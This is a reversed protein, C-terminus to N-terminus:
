ENDSNDDTTTNGDNGNYYGTNGDTNRIGVNLVEIEVRRNHFRGEPTSNTDIPYKEGFGEPVMRDKDIGKSQLYRIVSKSRNLSLTENYADSGLSDTHGIIKIRMEPFANMMMAVEDLHPYSESRLRYSDFDFNINFLCIRKDSIDVGLKIFAYMEGFSYCDKRIYELSDGHAPGPKIIYVTDTQTNFTTDHQEVFVTDQVYVTDYTQPQHPRPGKNKWSDDLPLAIRLAIEIGRNKRTEKYLEAGPILHNLIHSRDNDAVAPNNLIERQSFNNRLGINYGAELSLMVPIGNTPILFDIGGGLLVSADYPNIDADTIAASCGGPYDEQDIYSVKGGYAMNFQPAVMLYPSVYRDRLRINYTIPPRLDLYHAKLRYRVDKWELSDARGVFSVEPRIALHSKGLNFHGFLGVMGQPQLFHSYIDIPNYSYVMDSLNLGGRVGILNRPWLIPGEYTTDANNKPAPEQALATGTMMVTLIVFLFVNRKM